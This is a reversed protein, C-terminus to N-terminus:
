YRHKCNVGDEQMTQVPVPSVFVMYGDILITECLRKIGRPLCIFLSNRINDSSRPDLSLLMQNMYRKKPPLEPKPNKLRTLKLCCRISNLKFCKLWLMFVTTLLLM